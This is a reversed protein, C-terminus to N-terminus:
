SAKNFTIEVVMTNEEGIHLDHVELKFKSDSEFRWIYKVMKDNEGTLYEDMPGYLIMAKGTQDMDGEAHTMMTDLSNVMTMVFSQKFNDYGMLMFGDYPMGMMSNKYDSKLWRNEMLWSFEAVGKEPTGNPGMALRTETNWKGLFRELVKHNPGPETYKKAKAMMAAMDSPPPTATPQEGEDATLSITLAGLVLASIVITRRM